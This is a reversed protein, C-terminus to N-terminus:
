EVTVKIKRTEQVAKPTKSLTIDLVGKKFNAKIMTEDVEAPLEISRNFSGYSREMRFYDKGRDEKEEKKEGRITLVGRSLSVDIDKEDMGPLEAKISIEKESDVVDVRPSFSGISPEIPKLDFTRFFADFLDDFEKRFLAFPNDADKRVPINKKGFPTLDKLSM